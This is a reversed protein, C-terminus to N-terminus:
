GLASRATDAVDFAFNDNWSHVALLPAGRVAAAEFAFAVARESTPSGDVGVVVPADARPAACGPRVVVVPAPCDSAAGLAVSGLVVHLLRGSDRTAVVLMATHESERRLLAIPSAEAVIGSISLGPHLTSLEDTIERQVTLLGDRLWSVTGEDVAAYELMGPPIAFASVLRLPAHRRVAEAAAWRAAERSGATADIGVVILNSPRGHM